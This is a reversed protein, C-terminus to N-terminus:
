NLTISELLHELIKSGNLSPDESNNINENNKNNNIYNNILFSNKNIKYNKTKKKEAINININNANINTNVNINSNKNINFTNINNVNTNINNNNNKKNMYKNTFIPLKNNDNLDPSLNNNQYNIKYNKKNKINNNNYICKM